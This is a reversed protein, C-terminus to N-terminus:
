DSPTSFHFALGRRWSSRFGWYFLCWSPSLTYPDVGRPAKYDKVRSSSFRPAFLGIALSDARTHFSYYVVSHDGSFYVQYVVPRGSGFRHDLALRAVNQPSRIQVLRMGVAMNSLIAGRRSPGPITWPFMRLPFPDLPLLRQFLASGCPIPGLRRPPANANRPRHVRSQFCYFAPPAAACAEFLLAPRSAGPGNQEGLILWTILFVALVLVRDGIDGLDWQTVGMHHFIVLIVAPARIGNLAPINPQNLYSYFRRHLDTMSFQRFFEGPGGALYKILNASESAFRWTNSDLKGGAHGYRVAKGMRSRDVCQPGPHCSRWTRLNGFGSDLRKLYRPFATRGVPFAPASSAAAPMGMRSKGDARQVAGAGPLADAQESYM